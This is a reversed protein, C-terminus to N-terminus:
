LHSTFIIVCQFKLYLWKRRMGYQWINLYRIIWGDLFHIAQSNHPMLNGLGGSDVICRQDELMFQGAVPPVTVQRQEIGGEFVGAKHTNGICSVIKPFSRFLFNLKIQIYVRYREFNWWADFRATRCI